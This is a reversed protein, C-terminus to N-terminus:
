VGAAPVAARIDDRTGDVSRMAEIKRLAKGHFNVYWTAACRSCVWLNDTRQTLVGKKCEKCMLHALVGKKCM